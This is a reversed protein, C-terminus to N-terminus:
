DTARCAPCSLGHTDEGTQVFWIGRGIALLGTIVVCYAAVRLLKRRAAVSLASAGVGALFMMPVTGLGFVVMIGISEIFSGASAALALYGYVLGCPLLGTLIGALFAFELGPATLFTGLMGGALCGFGSPGSLRKGFRIGGSRLGQIVLITGALISLLAQANVWANIEHAVTMGALGVSAGLVAYTFIRGSSYVLQRLVNGQVSRAGLGVTIAFGGCMGLCHSSGLLGGLLILPWGIM